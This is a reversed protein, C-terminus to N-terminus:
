EQQDGTTEEEAQQKSAVALEKDSRMTYPEKLHM